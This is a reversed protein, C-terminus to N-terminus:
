RGVARSRATNVPALLLDRGELQLPGSGSRTCLVRLGTAMDTYVRGARLWRPGVEVFPESCPVYGGARMPQGACTLQGSSAAGLGLVVVHTTGTSSALRQGIYPFQTGVQSATM